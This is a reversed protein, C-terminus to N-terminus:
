VSDPQPNRSPLTSNEDKSVQRGGDPLNRLTTGQQGFLMWPWRTWREEGMQGRSCKGLSAPIEMDRCPGRPPPTMLCCAEQM